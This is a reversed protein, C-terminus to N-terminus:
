LPRTKVTVIRVNVLSAMKPARMIILNSCTQRTKTTTIKTKIQAMVGSLLLNVAEATPQVRQRAVSLQQLLGRQM